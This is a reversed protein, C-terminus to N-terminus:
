LRVLGDECDASYNHTPTLTYQSGLLTNCVDNASEGDMVVDQSTRPYNRAASISKTTITTKTEKAKEPNQELKDLKDTEIDKRFRYPDACFDPCLSPSKVWIEYILRPHRGLPVM